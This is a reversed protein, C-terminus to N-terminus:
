TLDHVIRTIRAIRPRKTQSYPQAINKRGGERLPRMITTCRDQFGGASLSHLNSDQGRRWKKATILFMQGTLRSTMQTEPSDTQHWSGTLSPVNRLTLLQRVYRVQIELRFREPTPVTLLNSKTLRLELGVIRSKRLPRRWTELGSQRIPSKSRLLGPRYKNPWDSTALLSM